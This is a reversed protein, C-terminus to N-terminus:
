PPLKRVCRVLNSETDPATREAVVEGARTIEFAEHYGVRDHALDLDRLGGARSQTGTWTSGVVARTFVCGDLHDRMDVFQGPKLLDEIEDWEPLRMGLDHCYDAAQRWPMTKDPAIPTWTLWQATDRVESGHVVFRGDGCSPGAGGTRAWRVAPVAAVAGGLVVVLGVALVVVRRRM